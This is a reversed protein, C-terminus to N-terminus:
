DRGNFRVGSVVAEDKIEVIQKFPSHITSTTLRGVESMFFLILHQGLVKLIM